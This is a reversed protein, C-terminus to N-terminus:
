EGAPLPAPDASLGHLFLLLDARQAPDPAGDYIMRTEPAFAAPDALFADLNAFSWVGVTGALAPSYEYGEAGAIPRGVIDWLNPGTRHAEGEAFTHCAICRLRLTRAGAADADALRAALAADADADDAGMVDADASVPGPAPAPTPTGYVAGSIWAIVLITAVALLLAGAAQYFAVPNM